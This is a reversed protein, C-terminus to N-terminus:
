LRLKFMSEYILVVGFNKFLVKIEVDKIFFQYKLIVNILIIM